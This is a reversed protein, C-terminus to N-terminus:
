FFKWFFFFCRRGSLKKRRSVAQSTQEPPTELRTFMIWKPRHSLQPDVGSTLREWDLKRWPSEVWLISRSHAEQIWLPSSIPNKHLQGPLPSPPSHTDCVQEQFRNSHIELPHDLMKLNLDLFAYTSPSETNKAIIEARSLQLPKGPCLTLFKKLLLGPGTPSDQTKWSM